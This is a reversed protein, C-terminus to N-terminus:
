HRDHHLKQQKEFGEGGTPYLENCVPYNKISNQRRSIKKFFYKKSFIREPICDSHCVTQVRIRGSSEEPGNRFCAWTIYQMKERSYFRDNESSFNHNIELTQEFCLNHTCTLVAESYRTGM